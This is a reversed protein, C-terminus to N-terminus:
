YTPPPAQDTPPPVPTVEPSYPPPNPTYPPPMQTNPMAYPAPQPKLLSDTGSVYKVIQLTDIFVCIFLVLFVIM